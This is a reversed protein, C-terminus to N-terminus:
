RLKTWNEVDIIFGIGRVRLFPRNNRSTYKDTMKSQNLHVRDNTRFSYSIIILPEEAWQQAKAANKLKKIKYV